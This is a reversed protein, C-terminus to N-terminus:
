AEIADVLAHELNSFLYRHLLAAHEDDSTYLEYHKAFVNGLSMVWDADQIVDLSEALFQLGFYLSTIFYSAPLLPKSKVYAKIDLVVFHASNARSEDLMICKKVDVIIESFHQM